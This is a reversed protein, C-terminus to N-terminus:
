QISIWAMATSGINSASPRESYQVRRLLGQTTLM